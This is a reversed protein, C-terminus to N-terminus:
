SNGLTVGGLAEAVQQLADEFEEDTIDLEELQILVPNDIPEGKDNESPPWISELAAFVDGRTLARIFKFRKWKRPLEIRLEDDEGEHFVIERRKAEDGAEAAVARAEAEREAEREPNTSNPKRATTM